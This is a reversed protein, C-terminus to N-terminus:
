ASVRRQRWWAYGAGLLLIVGIGGLLARWPVADEAPAPSQEATFEAVEEPDPAEPDGYAFGASGPVYGEILEDIPTASEGQATYRGKGDVSIIATFVQLDATDLTDRCAFTLTYDGKIRQGPASTALYTALDTPLPVVYHGPYSEPGITSIKTVGIVNGRDKGRLNPGDLKVVFMQGRTCVDSTAIDIASTLDGKAPEVVLFGRSESEEAQAAAPVGVVIALVTAVTLAIRKM